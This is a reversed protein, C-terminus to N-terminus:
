DGAFRSDRCDRLNTLDKLSIAVDRLKYQAFRIYEECHCVM